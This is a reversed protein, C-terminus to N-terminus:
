WLRLATGTLVATNMLLQNLDRIQKLWTIHTLKEPVVIIDGSEIQKIKRGFATIEWQENRNSWEIFGRALKRVGGDVKITFINPEDAYRAYGGAASIYEWYDWKDDYIQPGESMVAGIVNVVNGNKPLHLIDGDEMEVDQTSGKLLRLHAITITLRGTAKLSKMYAVFRQRLELEDAKMTPPAKIKDPAPAAGPITRTSVNASSSSAGPSNNPRSSSSTSTGTNITAGAVGPPVLEREIREAMDNLNQQQVQRVSERTFYAGRLYANSTYGGAREIVSSLREGKQIPYRGPRKFEGSLTVYKGAPAAPAATADLPVVTSAVVKAGDATPGVAGPVSQGSSAAGTPINQGPAVNGDLPVPPVGAAAPASIATGVVATAAAAVPVDFATAGAAAGSVAAGVGASGAAATSASRETFPSVRVLDRDQLSPPVSKKLNLDQESVDYIVKRENGIIREVQIRRAETAPSPAAIVGGALGILNELDARDKLEYVAPRRVSGAIGVAPGKPPVFVEDGAMLTIDKSKSGKLLLDYLDFSAVTIGKRIVQVNRVSGTESPGGASILADTITAFAGVTHPGPRRVEGRVAVHFTKRANMSIDVSVGATEETKKIVQKSMEEFTMGGVFVSGIRPIDIRGNGDVTLEHRANISGSLVLSVKDEPGVRYQMPVPINNLDASVTATTAATAATATTSAGVANKAATVNTAAATRFFEYGFPMLTAFERDASGAPLTNAVEPGAKLVEATHTNAPAPGNQGWVSSVLLPLFVLLALILLITRFPTRDQIKVNQM